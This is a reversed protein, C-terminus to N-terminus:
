GFLVMAATKSILEHVTPVWKRRMKAFNATVELTAITARGLALPRSAADACRVSVLRTM